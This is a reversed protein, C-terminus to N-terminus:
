IQKEQSARSQRHESKQRYMMDDAEKMLIDIESMDNLKGYVLGVSVGIEYPRRNEKVFQELIGRLLKEYNEYFSLDADKKEEIMVVIYEDGGFRACIGNRGEVSEKLCGAVGKIAYDGEAHGYTDNIYKLGDMDVSVLFVMKEVNKLEKIRKRVRGYFGSRNYLQTLMDTIYMRHLQSQRRITGLVQEFALVFEYFESLDKDADQYSVALFGYVEEQWHLPLVIIQGVEKILKEM